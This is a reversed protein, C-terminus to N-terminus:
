GRWKTIMEQLEKLNKRSQAMQNERLDKGRRRRERKDKEIL